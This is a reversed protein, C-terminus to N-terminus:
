GNSVIAGNVIKVKDGEHWAPPTSQVVQRTAGDEFRVTLHYEKVTRVKKEVQHGAIAGGIAGLVTMATNGNGRGMQHGLLGGAVAGVGIGIGNTEAPKETERVSEITGCEYCQRRAPEAVPEYKAAVPESRIVPAPQVAPAPDNRVSVPAEVPASAIQVPKLKPAQVAARRVPAPRPEAKPVEVATSAALKHATVAESMTEPAAAPTGRSNPIWGLIAASGVLSFVAVSIAAIIVLPHTTKVTQTNM